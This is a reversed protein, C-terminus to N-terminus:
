TREAGAYYEAIEDILAEVTYITPAVVVEFGLGRATEATIPGIAAAKLGALPVGTMATFNTVTSSSTFTVLDVSGAAILARMREAEEAAGAPIVTRYTPAVVVERAGHQRLMEPLVERAVEARPILIRTGSIRAAGIAEVVAEARYEGPMATVTLAYRRVRNATIPGIAAIAARGMERL